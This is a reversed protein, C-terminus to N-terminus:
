IVPCIQERIKVCKLVKDGRNSFMPVKSHIESPQGPERIYKNNRSFQQFKVGIHLEERIRPFINHNISFNRTCGPDSLAVYTSIEAILFVNCCFASFKAYIGINWYKKKSLINAKAYIDTTNHQFSQMHLYKKRIIKKFFSCFTLKQLYKLGSPQFYQM